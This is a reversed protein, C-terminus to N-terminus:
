PSHKIFSRCFSGESLATFSPKLSQDPGGSLADSLVDSCARLQEGSSMFNRLSTPTPSQHPRGSLADSLVDSCARLQKSSSRGIYNRLSAESRHGSIAM